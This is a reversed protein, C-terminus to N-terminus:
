ICQILKSYHILQTLYQLNYRWNIYFKQSRILQHHCRIKHHYSHDYLYRSSYFYQSIAIVINTHSLVPIHCIQDDLKHTLGIAPQTRFVLPKLTLYLVCADAVKIMFHDKNKPESNYFYRPGTKADNANAYACM